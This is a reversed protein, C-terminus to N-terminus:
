NGITRPLIQVAYAACLVTLVILHYARWRVIMLSLYLLLIGFAAIGSNFLPVHTPPLFLFRYVVFLIFGAVLAGYTVRRSAMYYSRLDTEADGNPEPLVSAAAVYVALLKAVQVLSQGVTFAADNRNDWQDAWVFVVIMLILAAQLMPELAWRVNRGARLLLQLSNAIHTLALGLIVTSLGFFLEFPTM